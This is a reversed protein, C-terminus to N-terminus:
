QYNLTITWTGSYTGPTQNAGVNLLAGIPFRFIGTASGIRFARPAATLVATPTSGITINRMRMRTGPGTLWIPAAGVSIQVIQNQTGQGAFEAPDHDDGVLIIGNTSTRTGNPALVVDGAVASPIISGFKLGNVEIFSLPTVVVSEIDFNASQACAPAAIGAVSIAAVGCMLRMFRIFKAGNM